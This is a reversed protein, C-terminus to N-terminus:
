RRETWKKMAENDLWRELSSGVGFGQGGRGGEMSLSLADLGPWRTRMSVALAHVMEGAMRWAHVLCM